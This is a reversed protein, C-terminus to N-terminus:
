GELPPLANRLPASPIQMLGGFPQSLELILYIAGTASLAFIILEGIVMPSPSAFLSFSVFIITLWFVLVALFPMPIAEDRETFLLLRTRWMETSVKLTRAHLSRQTETQPSLQQLQRNFAEAERSAEFPTALHIGSEHWVRDILSVVVRRLLERPSRAEGGYQALLHDLLIVNATMQKIQASQTDHSSKASAILLGLVLAAITGILGTGLRVVDKADGSLNQEPLSNRLLTGLMIGSLICALAILSLTIPGLRREADVGRSALPRASREEGM